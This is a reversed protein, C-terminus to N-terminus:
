IIRFFAVVAHTAAQVSTPTLIRDARWSRRLCAFVLEAAYELFEGSRYHEADSASEDLADRLAGSLEHVARRLADESAADFPGRLVLYATFPSELMGAVREVVATLRQAENLDGDPRRGGLSSSFGLLTRASLAGLVAQKDAFSQYILPLPILSVRAIEALTLKDFGFRTVVVEAAALIAPKRGTLLAPSRTIKTV